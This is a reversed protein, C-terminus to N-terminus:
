RPLTAEVGIRPPQSSVAQGRDASSVRVAASTGVLRSLSGSAIEPRQRTLSRRVLAEQIKAKMATAIEDWAHAAVIQRALGRREQRSVPEESWLKEIAAVFEISTEAIEVVSGYLDIVDRIPTSVVAKEAALYELTKTPSIFRTANNLAFPLIAADFRTLYSPLDAYNRQGLYHINPRRPLDDPSIKVVPGIMILSWEPRLEAIGAILDLDMREDIVGYFGIVPSTIHELEPSPDATAFHVADVGSPFSSIYSHRNQRSQYLSPGGTFVLDARAMLEVECTRLEAPAGQFNALEDMVDYVVVSPSLKTPMADLAMPTYFWVIPGCSGTDVLGRAEFFPLLLRAITPNTAANFGWVSAMSAPLCPTIVTVGDKEEISLRAKEDLDLMEPEEVFYVDLHSAFRSLLHQPRQWVFGWRLHSFCILANSQKSGSFINSATQDNFMDM